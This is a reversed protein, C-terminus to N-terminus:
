SGPRNESLDIYLSGTESTPDIECDAVIEDINFLRIWMEDINEKSLELHRLSNDISTREGVRQNDAWLEFDTIEIPYGDPVYLYLEFTSKSIITKLFYTINEGTEPQSITVIGDNNVSVPNNDKKGCGTICLCIVINALLILTLKRIENM